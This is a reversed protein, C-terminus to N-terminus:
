TDSSGIQSIPYKKGFYDHNDWDDISFVIVDNIIKEERPLIRKMTIPLKNLLINRVIQRSKADDKQSNLISICKVQKNAGIAFLFLLSHHFKKSLSEIKDEISMDVANKVNSNKYEVLYIYKDDEIVWDVDSLQYKAFIAQQYYDRMGNSAFIANSCDIQYDGEQFIRNNDTM